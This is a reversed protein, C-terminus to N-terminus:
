QTGLEIIANYVEEHAIRSRNLQWEGNNNHINKFWEEGDNAVRDFLTTARIAFIPIDGLRESLFLKAEDFKKKKTFNNIIIAIPKNMPSVLDVTSITATLSRIDTLTPIVIVDSVETAQVAKPDLQTSMAGFDFVVRDLTLLEKPIKRKNAEIQIAKTSTTILDNTVYDADIEAALNIALSSKGVGGKYSLFLIKIEFDDM